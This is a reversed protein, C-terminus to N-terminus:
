GVLSAMAIRGHAGQAPQDLRRAFLEDDVRDERLGVQRRGAAELLAPPPEDLHEGQGVGDWGPPM